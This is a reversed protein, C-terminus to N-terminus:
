GKMFIFIHIFLLSTECINKQSITICEMYKKDGVKGGVQKLVQKVEEYTLKGDGNTDISEIIASLDKM